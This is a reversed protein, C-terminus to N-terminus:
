GGATRCSGWGGLRFKLDVSLQCSVEFVGVKKRIEKGVAFFEPYCGDREATLIGAVSWAASWDAKVREM